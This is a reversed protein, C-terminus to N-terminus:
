LKKLYYNPLGEQKLFTKHSYTFFQLQSKRLRHNDLLVKQNLFAVLYIISLYSLNM